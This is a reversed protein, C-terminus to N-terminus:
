EERDLEAIESEEVEEERPVMALEMAQIKQLRIAHLAAHSHPHRIEPWFERVVNYAADIALTTGASTIGSGITRTSAPQWLRSIFGAGFDGALEGGNVTRAGTKTNRTIIVSTLAYFLRSKTGTKDSSRYGYQEHLFHAVPFEISKKVIHFGFASAFRRGFGAMGQHWESPTNQYQAVGASAASKAIATPGYTHKFYHKTDSEEPNAAVAVECVSILLIASLTRM